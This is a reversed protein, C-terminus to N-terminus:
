AIGNNQAWTELTEDVTDLFADLATVKQTFAPGFLGLHVAAEQWASCAPSDPPLLAATETWTVLLPWLVALPQPGSLLANFAQYYYVLRAPHLGAPRSIDPISQYASRWAPLWDRLTAADVTPGGLLGLLGPYLGPYSIAEARRPFELLLRREALASGSLVAVANAAHVVARLYDNLAEIGEAQPANHLSFWIQRAHEELSRARAMINDPQNFQGRVSAQTFDMFHQPDYLIKCDYVLPGLWPHIRLHRPQTYLSRPHHSIDLHVEETMEVIEREAERSNNHIFFLDIDAAGGLLPDGTLLSGHLYVALLDRETRTRKSVTDRAIKQLIELNIRM